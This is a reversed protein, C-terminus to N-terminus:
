FIQQRIGKLSLPGLLNPYWQDTFLFLSTITSLFIILTILPTLGLSAGLLNISFSLLISILTFLIIRKFNFKFDTYVIQEKKLSIFALMFFNIILVLNILWTVVKISYFAGICSAGIVLVLYILQTKQIVNVLGLGRLHAGHVKYFLRFIMGISFIEFLSVVGSWQNGLLVFVIEESLFLIIPILPLTTLLILEYSKILYNKSKLRDSKSSSFEPFLVSNLSKGLLKTPISMLSYGKSYFGLTEAGFFKSVILYDGKLAFYNYIKALTLHKGFYYLQKFSNKEFSFNFIEFGKTFAFLIYYLVAQTIIGLAISFVGLEFFALVSSIVGYGVTFSIFDILILKRFMFNRQLLSYQVQSLSRFPFIISLFILMKELQMEEFFRALYSSIIIILLMFLIGVLLACTNATGIDNRSIEDKQVLAQGFGFQVMMEAFGTVITAIAIIGFDEPTLLRALIATFM